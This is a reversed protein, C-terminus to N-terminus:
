LKELLLKYQGTAKFEKAASNLMQDAFFDFEETDELVYEMDLVFKMEYLNIKSM